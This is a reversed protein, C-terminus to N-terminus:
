PLVLLRKCFMRATTRSTHPKDGYSFRIKSVNFSPAPFTSFFIYLIALCRKPVCRLACVLIKRELGVALLGRPRSCTFRTHTERERIFFMRERESVVISTREGREKKAQDRERWKESAALSRERQRGERVVGEREEQSSAFVAEACDEAKM